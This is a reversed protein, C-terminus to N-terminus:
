QLKLNFEGESGLVSFLQSEKKAIIFLQLVLQPASKMFSEVLHLFMTWEGAAKQERKLLQSPRNPEEHRGEAAEKLEAAEM